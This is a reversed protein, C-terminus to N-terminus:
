VRNKKSNKRYFALGTLGIGLLLLTGPEPIQGPQAPGYLAQIGAIDDASLTRLAGGRDKYMAMVSSLDSSHAMGLAHGLEHLVVTFFDYTNDGSTDSPDDVWIVQNPYSSNQDNNFHMDGGISGWPPDLTTTGPQFTDALVVSGGILNYEYAGIRIDGVDQTGNPGGGDTVKGLNTFGSVGAWLNLATEIAWLEYPVGGVDPLGTMGILNTSIATSPHLTRDGYSIAIGSAMTSWTAGGPTAPPNLPDIFSASNPGPEWKSNSLSYAFGTTTTLSFILCALLLIWLSKKM